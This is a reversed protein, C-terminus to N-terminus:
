VNVSNRRPFRAIRDWSRSIAVFHRGPGAGYASAPAPPPEIFVDAMYPPTIGLMKKRKKQQHPERWPVNENKMPRNFAAGNESRRSKSQDSLEPM